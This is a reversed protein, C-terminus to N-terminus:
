VNRLYEEGFLLMDDAYESDYVPKGVSLTNTAVGTSLLRRDVDSRLVTMVIVFLNPCHPM